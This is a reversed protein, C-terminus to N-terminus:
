RAGSACAAQADALSAVATPLPMPLHRCVTLAFKAEARSSFVPGASAASPGTVGPWRGTQGSAGLGGSAVPHEEPWAGESDRWRGKRLGREESGHWQVNKPNSGGPRWFASAEDIRGTGRGRGANLNPEHAAVFGVKTPGTAAVM